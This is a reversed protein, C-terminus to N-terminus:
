VRTSEALIRAHGLADDKSEYSGSNDDCRLQWGGLTTLAARRRGLMRVLLADVLFLSALAVIFLVIGAAWHLFGQGAEDGFYFHYTGPDDFNVTKKVLRLGLVRTYFDISRQLDGVRLMTHLMRM